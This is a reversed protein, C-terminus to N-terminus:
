RQMTLTGLTREGSRRVEGHTGAFAGNEFSGEFTFTRRKNETRVQGRLDGETLSGEATGRYTHRKGNFRFRFAVDWTNESTSEFTVELPGRSGDGEWFYEGTLVTKETAPASWACALLLLAVAFWRFSSTKM